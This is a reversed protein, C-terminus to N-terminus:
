SARRLITKSPRDAIPDGETLSEEASDAAPAGEAAGGVAFAIRRM